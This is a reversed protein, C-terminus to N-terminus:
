FRFSFLVHLTLPLILVRQTKDFFCLLLYFVFPLSYGLNPQLLFLFATKNASYNAGELFEVLSLLASLQTLPNQPHKDPYM